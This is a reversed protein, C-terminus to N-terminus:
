GYKTFPSQALSSVTFVSAPRAANCRDFVTVTTQTAEDAMDKRDFMPTELFGFRDVMLDGLLLSPLMWNYRVIMVYHKACDLECQVHHNASIRSFGCAALVDLIRQRPCKM